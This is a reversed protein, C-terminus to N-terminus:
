SEKYKLIIKDILLDAIDDIRDFEVIKPLKVAFCRYVKNLLEDTYILAGNAINEIGDLYISERNKRRM